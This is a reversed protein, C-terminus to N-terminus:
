LAARALAHRVGGATAARRARSALGTTAMARRKLWGCKAHQKRSGAHARVAEDPRTSV